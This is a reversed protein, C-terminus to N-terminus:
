GTQSQIHFTDSESSSEPGRGVVPLTIIARIFVESDDNDILDNRHPESDQEPNGHVWQSDYM